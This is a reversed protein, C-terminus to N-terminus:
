FNVCDYLIALIKRTVCEALMLCVGFIPMEGVTTSRTSAWKQPREIAKALPGNDKFIQDM